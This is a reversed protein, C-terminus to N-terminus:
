PPASAARFSLGALPSSRPQCDGPPSSSVPYLVLASHERKTGLELDFSALPALSRWCPQGPTNAAKLALWATSAARSWTGGHVEM